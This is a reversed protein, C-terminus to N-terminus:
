EEDAPANTGKAIQDLIEADASAIRLRVYDYHASLRARDFQRRTQEATALALLVDVNTAIGSQNDKLLLEYYRDYLRTADALKAAQVLEESVTKYVSRVSEVAQRRALDYAIQEGSRVSVANRVQSQTLGGSFIPVSLTLTADWNVGDYLGPRNLYYDGTVSATPLHGGEAFTVAHDAAEWNRRAEKLDPREDLRALWDSAAGSLAPASDADVLAIEPELGTLFALTERDAGLTGRASAASAEVSAVAAEISVVDAERARGYRRMGALQERRRRDAALEREYNSLDHEDELVAYYAQATDQYLQLYAQRWAEASAAKLSKKQRLTSLDQFGKFLSQTATFQETQQTAPFINQGLAQPPTQQRLYTLGFSVTPLFNARAQRIGEEAQRILEVDSALADSRAAALRFCDALTYAAEARASGAAALVFVSLLSRWPRKM